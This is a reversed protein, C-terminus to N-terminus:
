RRQNKEIFEGLIRYQEELICVLADRNEESASWIAEILARCREYYLEIDM